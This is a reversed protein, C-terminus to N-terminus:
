KGELITERIHDIQSKITADIDGFETEIFVGGREISTDEVFNIAKNGTLKGGLIEEIERIYEYDSPHIRVMIEDMEMLHESAARVTNLILDPSLHIERHIVKEASSMAIQLMQELHKETLRDRVQELEAIAKKFTSALPELRKLAMRQGEVQGKELGERYADMEIAEKRNSAERVIEEAKTKALKVADRGGKQSGIDELDFHPVHKDRLIKSSSMRAERAAL